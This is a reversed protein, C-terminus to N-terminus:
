AAKRVAAAGAAAMQQAIAQVTTTTTKPTAPLARPRDAPTFHVTAQTAGTRVLERLKATVEPVLERRTIRNSGHDAFPDVPTTWPGIRNDVYITDIGDDVQAVCYGGRDTLHTITAIM